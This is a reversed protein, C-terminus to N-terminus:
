AALFILDLQNKLVNNNNSSLFLLVEIASSTRRSAPTERPRPVSSFIESPPHAQIADAKGFPFDSLQCSLKSTQYNPLSKLLDVDSGFLITIPKILNVHVQHTILSKM